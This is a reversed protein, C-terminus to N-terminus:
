YLYPRILEAIMVTAPDAQMVWAGGQEFLSGSKLMDVRQQFLDNGLWALLFGKFLFAAGILIVLGRLPFSPARRRPVATVLGDRGVRHRVGNRSMRMHKRVVRNLRQDFTSEIRSM